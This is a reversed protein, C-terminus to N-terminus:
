KEGRKDSLEKKYNEVLGTVNNYATSKALWEGALRDEHKKLAANSKKICDIKHRHLLNRIHKWGPLRTLEYLSELEELEQATIPDPM